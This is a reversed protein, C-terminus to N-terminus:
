EEHLNVSLTLVRRVCIVSNQMYEETQPTSRKRFYYKVININSSSM